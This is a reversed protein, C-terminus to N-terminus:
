PKSVDGLLATKRGVSVAQAHCGTIHVVISPDVKKHRIESGILEKAVVSVARETVHRARGTDLGPLLQSDGGRKDVVVAIHTEVQLDAVIDVVAEVVVSLAPRNASTVIARRLRVPPDGIV